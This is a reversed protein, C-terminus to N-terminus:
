FREPPVKIEKRGYEGAYFYGLPFFAQFTNSLLAIMIGYFATSEIYLRDYLSFSFRHCEVLNNM